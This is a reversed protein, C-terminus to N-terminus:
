KVPCYLDPMKFHRCMTCATRGYVAYNPYVNADYRTPFYSKKREIYIFAWKRFQSCDEKNCPYHFRVNPDAESLDGPVFAEIM